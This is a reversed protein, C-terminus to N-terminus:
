TFRYEDFDAVPRYGIRQYISNATPNALNTFLTCFEYGSDLLRQTFAATCATAYGRNRFPRPTYVPAITIGHRLPRTRGVLAVPEGDEWLSIDGAAIKAAVMERLSGVDSHEDLAEAEFEAYWRTVLDLDGPDAIRFRGPVDPRYVVQRLVYLRENLGDRVVVGAVEAYAAAFARSVDAPGVVGPPRMGQEALNAAVLRVGDRWADDWGLILVNRPPTIIAAVALADGAEVTALYPPIPPTPSRSLRLAIGLILNSRVEDQELTAQARELFAAADPYVTLKM